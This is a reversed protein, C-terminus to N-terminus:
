VMLTLEPGMLLSPGKNYEFIFLHSILLRCYLPIARSLKITSNVFYTQNLVAASATKQTPSSKKKSNILIEILYRQIRFFPASVHDAHSVDFLEEIVM